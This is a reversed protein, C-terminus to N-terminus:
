GGASGVVGQPRSLRPAVDRRGSVRNDRWLRLFVDVVTPDFRAGSAAVLDNAVDQPRAGRGTAEAWHACVAIVRAEARITDGALGDPYGTGDWHENLQRIVQAVEVHDPVASALQGAAIPQLRRLWQDDDSPGAPLVVAAIPFLRAARQIREVSFQGLGLEVAVASSCEAVGEAQGPRGLRREAIEALRYLHDARVGASTRTPAQGGSVVVRDRGSAKATYLASDAAAVLAAGTDWTDSLAAAGISVTMRVSRRPGVQIETESVARRLREALVPLDPASIRYALLAFEEGGYRALLEGSRVTNRLRDAIEVLVRDGAPHGYTDNIPKFHDVDIMLVALSGNDRRATKVDKELKAEFFRRTYLQTLGDTDALRRHDVAIASLRVVVLASLVVCAIAYAPVDRLEGRAAQILLLVPAALAGASLAALRQWSLSPPPAVTRTTLRRMSPHLAGAGLALNGALWVADLFNGAEYSGSLRQLVYLTDAALIAALWGVLLVFAGDRRGGAFILRLAVLLLALDMVPYTLSAMKVLLPTDSRSQPGIIMVWSLLAAVATLSLADLLGPLDPGSRRGRILLILGAVALPYHGIYAIDAFSPYTTDGIVYHSVYFTLDAIAYVAQSLGLLLWPLAPRPRYRALGWGVAVAASMSLTCYLILRIPVGDIWVPMAYYVGILVAGVALYSVWHASKM